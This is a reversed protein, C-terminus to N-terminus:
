QLSRAIEQESSIKKTAPSSAEKRGADELRGAVFEGLNETVTALPLWKGKWFAFTKLKEWCAIFEQPSFGMTLARKVAAGEKAFNAIEYGVKQGISDLIEKIRPDPSVQKRRNKGGPAGPTSGRRRRRREKDETIEKTSERDSQLTGPPVSAPPSPPAGALQGPPLWNETVIEKPTPKYRLRDQWGDPPEYESPWAWQLRQVDWWDLMQIATSKSTEYVKILSNQQLDKLLEPIDAKTIHDINPCVAYKIEDPDGCLRGQDDGNAWMLPFLACSKLSLRGYRRDTSYSQPFIRGRATARRM